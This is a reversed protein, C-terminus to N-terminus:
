IRKEIINLENPAICGAAVCSTVSPLVHLPVPKWQDTNERILVSDYIKDNYPLIRTLSFEYERIIQAIFHKGFRWFMAFDECYSNIKSERHKVLKM